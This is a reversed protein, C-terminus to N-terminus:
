GNDGGEEWAFKKRMDPAKMQISLGEKLRSMIHPEFLLSLEKPDVNGILITKRNNTYRDNLISQIVKKSYDTYQLLSMEDIVLLDKKAYYDSNYGNFSSDIIDFQSEYICNYKTGMRRRAENVLGCALTTKGNGVSGILLLCWPPSHLTENTRKKGEEYKNKWYLNEPDRNYWSPIPDHGAPNYQRQLYGIDELNEWPLFDHLLSICEKQEENKPILQSIPLPYKDEYEM